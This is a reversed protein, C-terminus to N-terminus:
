DVFLLLFLSIDLQNVVGDRNLDSASDGFKGYDQLLQNFDFIDIKGDAVIDLSKYAPTPSPVPSPSPTPTSAPTPSPSPSASPFPTSSPSPTPAAGRELSAKLNIVGYGFDIDKGVRGVDIAGSKILERVEVNSRNPNQSILLAALGSVHPAAMSTGHVLSYDHTTQNSMTTLIMEGPAVVEIWDGYNSFTSRQTERNVSGVAIVEEYAAPYRVRNTGDNGASAVIVANKSWAYKIAQHVAESNADIVLSLNIVRTNREAARVIADALASSSGQQGSGLARYPLVKVNWAVGAIGIGNNGRAALIGAVNTGHGHTDEASGSGLVNIGPLLNANLDPHQSSVGTDIVAVVVNPSGATYGWGQRASIYGLAWQEFFLPDNPIVITSESSVIYNPEVFKVRLDQRLAALLEAMVGEPIALRETELVPTTQILELEYQERLARKDTANVGEAFGLLIEDKVVRVREVTADSALSRPPSWLGFLVSLILIVIRMDIRVVIDPL